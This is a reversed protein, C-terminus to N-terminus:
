ITHYRKAQIFLLNVGCISVKLAGIAEVSKNIRKKFAITETSLSGFPQESISKEDFRDSFKKENIVIKM